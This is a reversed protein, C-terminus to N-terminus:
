DHPQARRCPDRGRDSSLGPPTAWLCPRTLTKFRYMANEVLTPGHYGCGKKWERRGLRSTTGVSENRWAAGPVTAKWHVAGDCSPISPTAGRAAIAAHCPKSDYAGDDRVSDLREGTPIQELLEALVDGDALDQHTMLAAWVQNDEVAAM